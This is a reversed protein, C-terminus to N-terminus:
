MCAGSGMDDQLSSSNRCLLVALSTFSRHMGRGVAVVDVDHGFV